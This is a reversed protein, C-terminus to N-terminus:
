LIKKTEIKLVSYQDLLKVYEKKVVKRRQSIASKKTALGQIFEPLNQTNEEM